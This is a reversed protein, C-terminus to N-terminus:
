TLGVSAGAAGGIFNGSGPHAPLPQNSLANMLTQGRDAQNITASVNAAQQGANASGDTASPTVVVGAKVQENYFANVLPSWKHVHSAYDMSGNYKRMYESPNAWNMYRFHPTYQWSKAGYTKAVYSRFGGDGLTNRKNDIWDWFEPMRQVPTAGADTMMHPTSVGKVAIMQMPTEAFWEASAYSPATYNETITTTKPQPEVFAANLSEDLDKGFAKFLKNDAAKSGTGSKAESFDLPTDEVGDTLGTADQGFLDKVNDVLPDVARAGVMDTFDVQEGKEAGGPLNGKFVASDLKEYGAGAVGAVAEVATLPLRALDMFTEGITTDTIPKIVNRHFGTGIKVMEQGFGTNTLWDGADTFMKQADSVLPLKGEPNEESATMKNLGWLAAGIPNGLFLATDVGANMLNGPAVTQGMTEASELVGLGSKYDSYIGATRGLDMAVDALQNYKDAMRGANNAAVPYAAQLGLGLGGASFGLIDEGYNDVGGPTATSNERGGLLASSTGLQIYPNGPM